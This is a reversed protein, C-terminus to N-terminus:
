SLRFMDTTMQSVSIGYSSYSSVLSTILIRIVFFFLCSLPWFFFFLCSLPWFFFFLCSLPWYFFYLCRDVFCVYLVLSRTVRVGSFVSSSSLHKPLNFIEQEVLMNKNFVLSNYKRNKNESESRKVIEATFPSFIDILELWRSACKFITFGQATQKKSLGM